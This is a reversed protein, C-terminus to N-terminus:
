FKLPYIEFLRTPPEDITEYKLLVLTSISMEKMHRKKKQNGGTLNLINNLGLLYVSCFIM